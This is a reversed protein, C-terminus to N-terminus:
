TSSLTAQRCIREDQELHEKAFRILGSNLRRRALFARVEDQFKLADEYRGECMAIANEVSARLQPKRMRVARDLWTRAALSNKRLAAGAWAAELFICHQMQKGGAASHALAAELHECARPEDGEDQSRYYALLQYYGYEGASSPMKMMADFDAANWERPLLGNAEETQVRRLAMWAHAQEPHRLLQVLRAGDSRNLGGRSPLLTIVLLLLDMWFLIAISGGGGHGYRLLALGSLCGLLLTAIPGGAVMWAFPTLHVNSRSPLNKAFGSGILRPDFRFSWHDGSKM